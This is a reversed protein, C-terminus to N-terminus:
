SARSLPLFLLLQYLTYFCVCLCICFCSVRRQYNEYKWLPTASSETRSPCSLTNYSLQIWICVIKLISILETLIQEVKLLSTISQSLIAYLIVALYTRTFVPYTAIYTHYLWMKFMKVKVQNNECKRERERYSDVFHSWSLAVCATSSTEFISKTHFSCM